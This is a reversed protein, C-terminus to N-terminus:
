KNVGNEVWEVATYFNGSGAVFGSGMYTCQQSSKISLMEVNKKKHQLNISINKDIRAFNPATAANINNYKLFWIKAHFYPFMRRNM